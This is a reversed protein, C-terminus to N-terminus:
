GSIRNKLRDYEDESIEGKALRTNIISIADPSAGIINLNKETINRYLLYIMIGAIVITLIWIIIGAGPYFPSRCLGRYPGAFAVSLPAATIALSTIVKKM